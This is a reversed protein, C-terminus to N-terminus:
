KELEAVAADYDRKIWVKRDYGEPLPIEKQGLVQMQYIANIDAIIPILRGSGQTYEGFAQNTSEGTRWKAIRIGNGANMYTVDAEEMLENDEFAPQIDGITGAPKFAIVNGNWADVTTRKGDKDIGMKRTIVTIPPLEQAALYNNLETVTVASASADKGKIALRVSLANLMRFYLTQSMLMEGAVIGKERMDSNVQAILELPNVRDGVTAASLAQETWQKPAVLKNEEQMLYDVRFDRGQPNNFQTTFNAVGWNSLAQLVVYDMVDKCGLYAEEIDGYLTREIQRVKEAETLRPNEYVEQLKRFTRAPMFFKHGVRPIENIWIDFGDSSRLPTPSENALVSAMFRLRYIGMIGEATLSMQPPLYNFWRDSYNQQFLAVNRESAMDFAKRWTALFDIPANDKHLGKFATYISNAM